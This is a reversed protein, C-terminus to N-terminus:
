RRQPTCPTVCYTAITVILGLTIPVIYLSLGFSVKSSDDGKLHPLSSLVNNLNWNDSIGDCYKFFDTFLMVNLTAPNILIQTSDVTVTVQPPDNEQNFWVNELPVVHFLLGDLPTKSTINLDLVKVGTEPCGLLFYVGTKSISTVGKKAPYVPFYPSTELLLKNSKNKIPNSSPLSTSDLSRGLPPKYVSIMSSPSILADISKESPTISIVEVSGFEPPNTFGEVDLM